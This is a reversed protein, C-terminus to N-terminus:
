IFCTLARFIRTCNGQDRMNREFVLETHFTEVDRKNTTNEKAPRAGLSIFQLYSSFVDMGFCLLYM